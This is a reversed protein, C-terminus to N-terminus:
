DPFQTVAAQMWKRDMKRFTIWLNEMKLIFIKKEFIGQETYVEANKIIM